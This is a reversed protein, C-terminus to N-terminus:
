KFQQSNYNRDRHNGHIHYFKNCYSFPKNKIKEYIRNMDQIRELMDKKIESDSKKQHMKKPIFKFFRNFTLNIINELSNENNENIDKFNIILVNDYKRYKNKILKKVKNDNRESVIFYLKYDKYIDILQDINTNHTKTILFNNFDFKINIKRKPIIFGHLLNVLLTSGTHTPSSQIIRINSM